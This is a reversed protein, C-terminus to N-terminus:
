GPGGKGDPNTSNKTSPETIPIPGTPRPEIAAPMLPVGADPLDVPAGGPGPGGGPTWVPPAVGRPAFPEGIDMRVPEPPPLIYDSKLGVEMAPGKTLIRLDDFNPDRMIIPTIFVYLTTRQTTKSSDRFLLGLLPIDGLLPVKLVTKGTSEFTLGGIVITCDRPVTVSATSLRNEQSPPPLGPSAASGTFASQEVEIDLKVANESIQPTVALSTGARASEGVSTITTSTGQSQVQTPVVNESSVAGEENDDILLQPTALVRTDTNNQLATIIFPVMDSRIVAATLGPLGTVVGKPDAFGGTEGFTGLGFDTNLGFQGALIQTEVALRSNMNETVAIIKASIYVQPRRSDLRQILRAFETQMRQRTKVIVQNNKEDEIVVTDEDGEISGLAGGAAGTGTRPTGPTNTQTRSPTRARSNRSGTGGALDTGLISGTNGVGAQGSLLNNIIEVVDEAKAHKLKYFEMVVLDGKSLADLKTELYQVRAHQEPTGHYMFGGVEPYIVFGAGNAPAAPQQGPQQFQNGPAQVQGQVGPIRLGAGAGSSGSDSGQYVTVEGLGERAGQAAIVEAARLGVEYFSSMLENPVDVIALLSEIFAAEEPRGRFLISNSQPDLMLQFTLNSSVGAVSGPGGAPLVGKVGPPVGQQPVNPLQNQAGGSVEGILTLLRERATAAAINKVKFPIFKVGDRVSILRDILDRLQQIKGPTDTVIIVGFEDAYVPSDLGGIVNVYSQLASPKLGRTDIVQTPYLEGSKGIGVKPMEAIPTILYSGFEGQTLTFGKQELLSILFSLLRDEPVDVPAMLGITKDSLTETYIIQIGLSKSVVEVFASLPVDGRQDIRITRAAQKVPEPQAIMGGMPILLGVCALM